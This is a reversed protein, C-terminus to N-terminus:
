EDSTECEHAGPRCIAQPKTGPLFDDLTMLKSQM